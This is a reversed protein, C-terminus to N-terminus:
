EEHDPRTGTSDDRNASFDQNNEKRTRRSSCVRQKECPFSQGVTVQCSGQWVSM